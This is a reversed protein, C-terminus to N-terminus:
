HVPVKLWRTERRDPWRGDKNGEVRLMGKPGPMYVFGFEAEASLMRSASSSGTQCKRAASATLASMYWCCCSTVSTLSLTRSFTMFAFLAAFCISVCPASASLTALAFISLTLVNKCARPSSALWIVTSYDRLYSSIIYSLSLLYSCSVLSAILVLIPSLLAEHDFYSLRQSGPM